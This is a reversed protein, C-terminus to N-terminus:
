SNKNPLNMIRILPLTNFQHFSGRKNCSVLFKTTPKAFSSQYNPSRLIVVLYQYRDYFHIIFEGKKIIIPKYLPKHNNM